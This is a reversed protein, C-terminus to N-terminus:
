KRKKLTFENRGGEDKLLLKDGDFKVIEMKESKKGDPFMQITKGDKDLSWKGGRTKKGSTQKFTEDKKFEMLSVDKSPKGNVVDVEWNGILKGKAGGGCAVFAFSILILWLYATKKM